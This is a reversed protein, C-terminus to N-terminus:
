KQVKENVPDKLLVNQGELTDWVFAKVEYNGDKPVVLSINMDKSEGANIDEEVPKYNIMKGNDKNYLALILTAKKMEKSVNKVKVRVKATDGNKFVQKNEKQIEFNKMLMEEINFDITDQIKENGSVRATFTVNGAKKAIMRGSADISAINEDSSEWMIGKTMIEQNKQDFVKASLDIMMNEKITTNELKKIEIKSVNTPEIYQIGLAHYMSKEKDLDALAMFAQETSKKDGFGNEKKFTLLRDLINKGNRDYDKSLPDVGVAVLGQIVASITCANEKGNMTSQIYQVGKNICDNVGAIEQHKGLAMISMATYDLDGFSGNAKQYSMLAKVAKEVEYDADAMDLAIISFALTTARDDGSSIIFKGQENQSDMLTKVYNKSQEDRPNKNAAILGIINGAYDSAKMSQEAMQTIKYKKTITDIDKQSNGTYRYGIAERFTFTDDKAYYSRLGEINEKIKEKNTKPIEEKITLVVSDKIISEDIVLKVTIKVKGKAKATVLGKKDIVAINKDSSEWIVNETTIEKNKEDFAKAKLQITDKMKLITNSLKEVLIRPSDLNKEEITLHITDKIEENGLVKATITVEGKAKATVVGTGNVVAVDEDSSEWTINEKMMEQKNQDLVKPSLKLIEEVKLVTNSPKEIIIQAAKQDGLVYIWEIRDEASIKVEGAGIEPTVGNVKVAWGSNSGKDNEKQGAISSVYADNKIEYKIGKQDLIRKTFSLITDDKEIEEEIKELIAKEKYGGIYIYAREKTEVVNLNIEDQINKEGIVKATIIVNGKAKATVVGTKEVTAINEDSSEWVIKGAEMEQDYKNYTKAKLQLSEKIKLTTIAQKQIEIKSVKLDKEAEEVMLQINDQISENGVVKATITINGAKKATIRGSTDISAINEDSSEWIVGKSMIEKHNQDFVKASLNIMMNEKITTNELKQIEIKSVKTPEIYQIALAHYMSKGKDLDALAMFAQETSKSDGFGNEKKFALLQDLINKGNKDYDKSLPDVGVAVLGQIVASITCANEKGNMTNQIYQVGKNICDSVGAIEQHKGLAMISMATYDIDGFSGNAKQYDMLAKVAKEVKYDADAMDLAIISFALTTASDDGLNLIFKGQENQSDMLTKVYNKGQEDRPNKNAAILGIINGAYDSAKMSQEAIQTIKYKQKIIDIDKQGDGTYRYGVAERFSFTDDKAYYGRLAKITEKIKEDNTKEDIIPGEEKKTKFTFDQQEGEILFYGKYDKNPELQTQFQFKGDENTLAQDFYVKKKGDNIQVVVVKNNDDTTGNMKINGDNVNIKYDIQAFSTVTLSILFLLSLLLSGIKRKM